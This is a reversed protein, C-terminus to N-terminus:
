KSIGKTIVTILNDFHAELRDYEGKLYFNPELGQLLMVLVQSYVLHDGPLELEGREIGRHILQMIQSVEWEIMGQKVNNVFDYHEYFNPRLTEQYNPAYRLVEMRKLMYNRLVERTDSDTDAFVQVLESKLRNLEDLVVAEFLLEKSGFHYYLSGKAKQAATAIDEMATKYYGYKSFTTGAIELLQNKIKSM